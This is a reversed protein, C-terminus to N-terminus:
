AAKRRRRRRSGDASLQAAFRQLKYRTRDTPTTRLRGSLVLRLTGPRISLAVANFEAALSSWSLDHELRYRALRDIIPQVDDELDVM